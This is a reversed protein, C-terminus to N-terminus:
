EEQFAVKRTRRIKPLVAMVLLILALALLSATLPRTLLMGFDGRALLMARRLNEELMPGIIFALLLPVPDCRLKLFVYGLAACIVALYIDTVDNQVSYLGICCFLLIAPFLFRYPVLLLRVWIGIMPLNLIVLMLNGIWMSVVLGWFLDPTGSIIQPGPQINHILMASMMMAMVGNSPIGLTLLPIFSTQAAANNASEPGALGEPAGQGFREPQAAVRKEMTYSAFAAMTVGGGPLIGLLSGLGSGRLIAPMVSRLEALRPLLRGIRASVLRRTESRELNGLIETIGFLGLAVVVFSIGGSLQPVGFTFRDIGSNIDAGVLGFLLGLILMGFSKLIPGSSLVIAAVLGVVMLAFYEAAGFSIAFNALAPAFAALVLTGFTGAILSGIAAIALAVGAQGKQAMAYGDLTAVVASSEGPLRLLIASTSGGYQAGYYIGALMILASTPDLAYTAPLLMAMTALPGIGPLIGILTGLTVGAFCYLINWPTVAVALGLAINSVFDM